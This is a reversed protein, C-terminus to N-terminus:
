TEFSGQLINAQSLERQRQILGSSNSDAVFSDYDHDSQLYGMRLLGIRLKRFYVACVQDNSHMIYGGVFSLLTLDIHQIFRRFGSFNALATTPASIDMAKEILIQWPSPHIVSEYKKNTWELNHKHMRLCWAVIIHYVYACLVGSAPFFQKKKEQEFVLTTWQPYRTKMNPYASFVFYTLVSKTWSTKAIGKSQFLQRVFLPLPLLCTKAALLSCQAYSSDNMVQKLEVDTLDDWEQQFRAHKIRILSAMDKGITASLTILKMEQNIEKYRWLDWLTDSDILPFFDPFTNLVVRAAFDELGSDRHHLTWFSNTPARPDDSTIIPEIDRGFESSLNQVHRVHIDSFAISERTLLLIFVLPLHQDIQQHVFLKRFQHLYPQFTPDSLDCQMSVRYLGVQLPGRGIAYMAQQNENNHIFQHSLRFLMIIWSAAQQIVINLWHKRQAIMQSTDQEFDSPNILDKIQDDPLAYSKHRLGGIMGLAIDKITQHLAANQTLKQLPTELSAFSNWKTQGAYQHSKYLPAVVEALVDKQAFLTEISELSYRFALRQMM